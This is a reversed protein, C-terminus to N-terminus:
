HYTKESRRRVALIVVRRAADDVDYLIRYDGVRLRHTATFGYVQLPAVLHKAQSPRPDAGLGKMADYIRQQFGQPLKGVLKAIEKEIRLTGFQVTYGGNM